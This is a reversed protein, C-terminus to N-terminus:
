LKADFHFCIVSKGPSCKIAFKEYFPDLEDNFIANFHVNNQDGPEPSDPPSSQDGGADDDEAGAEEDSAEDIDAGEPPGAVDPEGSDKDHIGVLLSYDMM